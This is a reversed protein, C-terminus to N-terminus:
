IVRECKHANFINYISLYITIFLPCASTTPVRAYERGVSPGIGGSAACSPTVAVRQDGRQWRSEAFVRCFQRAQVSREILRAFQVDRHLTNQTRGLLHPPISHHPSSERITRHLLSRKWCFEAKSSQHRYLMTLTDEQSHFLYQFAGDALIFM